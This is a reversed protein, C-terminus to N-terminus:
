FKSGGNLRGIALNKIWHQLVNIKVWSIYSIVLEHYHSCMQSQLQTSPEMILVFDFHVM